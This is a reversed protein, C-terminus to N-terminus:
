NDDSNCKRLYYKRFTHENTWDATRLIDSIPVGRAFADSTAAGRVSHAKFISTDIGSDYMVSRIWRALTDTSVPKHPRIYSVFLKSDSDKNRVTQTRSIYEALTCKTCLEPKDALCDFQVIKSKGPKSTKLKEAIAFRICVPTETMYNLDLACLTQERQASSLACLMVTKVTLKKLNLQDLPYLTQLYSTVKTVDWTSVYRPVPTRLTYIGKLLRVILPHRGVACNNVPYLTSSLASRYSNLTSYSKGETYCDSLFNGVHEM